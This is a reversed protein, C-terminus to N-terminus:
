RVVLTGKMTPHFTCEYAYTGKQKAVYRWAQKADISGSDFRKGHKGKTATATHPVLDDNTWTVTDGVQVTASTPQYQFARIAVTRAKPRAVAGTAGTVGTLVTGAALVAVGLALRRLLRPPTGVDRRVM